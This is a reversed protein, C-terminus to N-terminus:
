TQNCFTYNRCVHFMYALLFMSTQHHRGGENAVIRVENLTATSGPKTGICMWYNFLINCFLLAGFAFHVVQSVPKGLTPLVVSLYAFAVLFILGVGVTVYLPGGYKM